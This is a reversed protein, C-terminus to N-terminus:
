AITLPTVHSQFIPSISFPTHRLRIFILFCTHRLKPFHHIPANQCTSVKCNQFYHFAHSRRFTSDNKQYYHFAHSHRSALNDHSDRNYFSCAFLAPRASGAGSKLM